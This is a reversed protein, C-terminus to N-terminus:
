QTNILQSEVDVHTHVIFVLVTVNKGASTHLGKEIIMQLINVDANLQGQVM